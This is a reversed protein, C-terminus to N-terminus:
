LTQKIVEMELEPRRDNLIRNLTVDYVGDATEIILGATVAPDVTITGEASITKLLQKTEEERNVPCRATGEIKEPITAQVAKAFFSVYEDTPAETIAETVKEFVEDVGARKASQVAISATQRAKSFAVTELHTKEKTVLAEHAAAAEQLLTKTQVEIAAVQTDAEAKIAAASVAAEDAIKKILTDESM